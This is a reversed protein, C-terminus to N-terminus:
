NVQEHAQGILETFVRIESGQKVDHPVADIVITNKGFFRVVFGIGQLDPLLEKVFAIDAPSLEITCPFLLQQSFPLNAALMSLTKEYLIREHAVHQDVIIMGTRIQAIIYKNHLQWISGGIKAVDNRLTDHHFDKTQSDLTHQNVPSVDLSPTRSFLTNFDGDSM